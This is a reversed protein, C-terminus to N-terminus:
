CHIDQYLLLDCAMCSSASIHPQERAYVGKLSKTFNYAHLYVNELNSLFGIEHLEEEAYLINLKM